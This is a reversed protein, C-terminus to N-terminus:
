LMPFDSPTFHGEVLSVGDLVMTKGSDRVKFNVISSPTSASTFQAWGFQLGGLDTTQANPYFDFGGFRGGADDELYFKGDTRYWFGFTYETSGTLSLSHQIAEYSSNTVVEQANDGYGIPSPILNTTPSGIASWGDALGDADGDTEFDGDGGLEDSPGGRVNDQPWALSSIDDTLIPCAVVSGSRVFSEGQVKLGVNDDENWGFMNGAPSLDEGGASSLTVDSNEVKIGAGRRKLASPGSITVAISDKVHINTKPSASSWVVNEAEHYGGGVHVANVSEILVDTDNSEATYSGLESQSGMSIGTANGLAWINYAGIAHTNLNWGTGTNNNSLSASVEGKWSGTGNAAKFGDAGFGEIWVHDVEWQHVDDFLVGEAPGNLLRINRLAIGDQRAGTDADLLPGSSISNGNISSTIMGAGIIDCNNAWQLTSSVIYTGAPFFVPNGDSAADLADQIAQTDDTAGDGAAGYYKVNHVPEGGTSAFEADVSEAFVDVPSGSTGVSGSAQAAAPEVSEQVVKAGGTGVLGGLGLMGLAKMADRRSLKNSESARALDVLAQQEDESLTDLPNESM